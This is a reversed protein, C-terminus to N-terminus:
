TPSKVSVARRINQKLKEVAVSIDDRVDCGQRRRQLCNAKANICGQARRCSPLKAHLSQIHRHTTAIAHAELVDHIRNLNSPPFHFFQQNFGRLAFPWLIM